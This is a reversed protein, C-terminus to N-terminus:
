IKFLIKAIDNGFIFIMLGLILIMGVYQLITQIKESIPRRIIIEVITLLAHGGDLAPIPLLNMFALVISLLATITWFNQWDWTGGYMDKAIAIPGGMSSRVGVEGSFMKKFSGIQTKITTVSKEYAAPIADFFGLKNYEVKFLDNTKSIAIGLKGNDNVTAKLQITDIGRLATVQVEKSKFHGLTDLLQKWLHVDVQNIALIHDGKKLGAKEAPGATELKGIISPIPIEILTQQKEMITRIVEKSIPLEINQNNRRVTLVPADSNIIEESILPNFKLLTKGNIAVIQDSDHIGMSKGLETALIGNKLSSYPVEVEGYHMFIGTFIIIALIANVFIGGLMVILRQWAPKARFEWDKPESKMQETDLSEDIMGAIKVYGGLPLWGIGYETDKYKFSFLKKGWADFFIYFKEVRIGFMRAAAFHGLEHLGVLISLALVIQGIM